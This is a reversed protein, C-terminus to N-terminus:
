ATAPAMKKAIARYSDILPQMVEILEDAENYVSQLGSSHGDAWAKEMIKDIGPIDDVGLEKALDAKFDNEVQFKAAMYEKQAKRYADEDNEVAAIFGSSRLTKVLATASSNDVSSLADINSLEPDEAVEKLFSSLMFRKTRLGEKGFTIYAFLDRAPYAPYDYNSYNM